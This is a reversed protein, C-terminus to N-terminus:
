EQEPVPPEEPEPEPEAQPAPAAPVEESVPEAQPASVQEPEAAPEGHVPATGAEFESLSGIFEIEHTYLERLHAVYAATHTRAASLRTEENALARRAADIREQVAQEERAMETRTEESRRRVEAVTEEVAARKKDEAERVMADAMKQASHLTMRMADETARYEEIKDVLIKMKSKLAANEQYLTRYDEILTDLFADVQQMNYGNFSAKQFARSEAEQPTLM